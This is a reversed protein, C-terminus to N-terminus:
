EKPIAYPLPQWSIKPRSDPGSIFSEGETADDNVLALFEAQRNENHAAFAVKGINKGGGDVISTAPSPPNGIDVVGRYMHKKIKGKYHMRAIIEQGTYCGKSFSVGGTLQFNLDQPIFEEITEARVEGIGRRINLLDVYNEAVLLPASQCLGLLTEERAWIEFQHQAHHLITIEGSQFFTGPSPATLELQRLINEAEPGTLYVSGIDDSIAIQARSFVIYKKLSGFAHEVISSHVQLGMADSALPAIVFSSNMRGKHTCHAGLLFEGNKLRNLDCTCQGQLFKGADPGSVRLLAHNVRPIICTQELACVANFGDQRPPIQMRSFLNQWNIM